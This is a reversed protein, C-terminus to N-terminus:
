LYGVSGQTQSRKRVLSKLLVSSDLGRCLLALMIKGVELMLNQARLITYLFSIRLQRMAIILGTPYRNLSQRLTIPVIRTNRTRLHIRVCIAM